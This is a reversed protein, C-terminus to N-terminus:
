EEIIKLRQSWDFLREEVTVHCNFEDLEKAKENAYKLAASFTRYYRVESSYIAGTVIWCDAPYGEPMSRIIVNRHPKM